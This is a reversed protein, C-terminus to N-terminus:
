RKLTSIGLLTILIIDFVSLYTLCSKKEGEKLQIRGIVVRNVSNAHLGAVDRCGNTGVCFSNGFNRPPLM